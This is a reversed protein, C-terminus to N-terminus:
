ARHKGHVCFGPATFVGGGGGESVGRIGVQTYDRRVLVGTEVATGSRPQSQVSSLRSLPRSFCM